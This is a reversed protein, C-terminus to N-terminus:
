PPTAGSAPRPSSLVRHDADGVEPFRVACPREEFADRQLQHAARAVPENARVAGALGREELDHRTVLLRGFPAHGDVLARADADEALIAEHAVLVHDENDVTRSFVIYGLGSPHEVPEGVVAWTPDYKLLDGSRRGTGGYANLSAIAYPIFTASIHEKNECGGTEDCGSDPGSTATKRLDPLEPARCQAASVTEAPIGLDARSVPGGIWAALGVLPMFLFLYFRRM